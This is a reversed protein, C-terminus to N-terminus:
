QPDTVYPDYSRMRHEADRDARFRDRTALLEDRHIRAAERMNDRLENRSDRLDDRTQHLQARLEESRSRVQTRLQDRQAHLDQRFRARDASDIFCRPYASLLVIAALGVAAVGILKPEM